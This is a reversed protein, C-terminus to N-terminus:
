HCTEQSIESDHRILHKRGQASLSVGRGRVRYDKLCNRFHRPTFVSVDKVNTSCKRKRDLVTWTGGNGPRRELIIRVCVKPHRRTTGYEYSGTITGTELILRARNLTVSGHAKAVEPVSLVELAVLVILLLARRV